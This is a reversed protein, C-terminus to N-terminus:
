NKTLFKKITLKLTFMGSDPFMKLREWSSIISKKVKRASAEGFGLLYYEEILDLDKFGQSLPIIQYDDRM